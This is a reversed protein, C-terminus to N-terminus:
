HLLSPTHYWRTLLKFNTEQIRTCISSKHSFRIVNNQHGPTFTHNLGTNWKMICALRHDELPTILLNYMKSLVQPLVGEDSCYEELTTLRCGFEWPVPLPHLFHHLQLARWFNLSFPGFPDMLSPISPWADM